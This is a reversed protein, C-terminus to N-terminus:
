GGGVKKKGTVTLHPRVRRSTMFSVPHAIETCTLPWTPFFSLGYLLQLSLM